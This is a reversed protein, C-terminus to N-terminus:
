QELWRGDRMISRGELEAVNRWARATTPSAILFSHELKEDRPDWGVRRRYVEAVERAAEHCPVVTTTADFVTVDRATGLALRVLGSRAAYRATPSDSPTALIIRDGDWAFSLPVLHPRDGAATAVWIDADNELRALTDTDARRQLRSRADEVSLLNTFCRHVVLRV